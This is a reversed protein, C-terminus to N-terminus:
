ASGDNPVHAFFMIGHPIRRPWGKALSLVVLTTVRTESLTEEGHNHFPAIRVAHRRLKGAMTGKATKVHHGFV